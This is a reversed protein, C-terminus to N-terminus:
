ARTRGRGSFLGVDAATPGIMAVKGHGPVVARAARGGGPLRDGAAAAVSHRRQPFGTM